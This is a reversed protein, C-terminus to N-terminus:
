KLVTGGYLKVVMGGQKEQKAFKEAEYHDRFPGVVNLQVGMTDGYSREKIPVTQVVCHPNERPRDDEDEDDLDRVVSLFAKELAEELKMEIYNEGHLIFNKLPDDNLAKELQKYNAIDDNLISEVVKRGALPLSDILDGYGDDGRELGKMEWMKKSLTAKVEEYKNHFRCMLEWAVPKSLDDFPAPCPGYSQYVCNCMFNHMASGIGRSKDSLVREALAELVVFFDETEMPKLSRLEAKFAEKYAKSAANRAKATQILNSM